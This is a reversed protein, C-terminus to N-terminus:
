VGECSQVLSVFHRLKGETKLNAVFVLQLIVDGLQDPHVYQLVSTLRDRPNGPSLTSATRGEPRVVNCEPVLTPTGVVTLFVVEPHRKHLHQLLGDLSRQCGLSQVPSLVVVFVAILSHLQPPHFGPTDIQRVINDLIISGTIELELWLRTMTMILTECAIM